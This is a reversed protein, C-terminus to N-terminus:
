APQSEQRSLIQEQLRSIENRLTENQSETERIQGVVKQLKDLAIDLEGRLRQQDKESDNISVAHLEEHDLRQYWADLEAQEADTLVMGRTARDHLEIGRQDSM